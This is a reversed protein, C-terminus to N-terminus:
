KEDEETAIEDKAWQYGGRLGLLAGFLLTAPFLVLELWKDDGPTYGSVVLCAFMIAIITLTGLHFHTDTM